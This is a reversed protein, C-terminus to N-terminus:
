IVHNVQNELINAGVRVLSCVGSGAAGVVAVGALAPKGYPKFPVWNLLLLVTPLAGLCNQVLKLTLDGAKVEPSADPLYDGSAAEVITQVVYGGLLFAGGILGFLGTVLDMVPPAAPLNGPLLPQTQPNGPRAPLFDPVSPLATCSFWLLFSLAWCGLTLGDYATSPLGGWLPFSFALVVLALFVPIIKVWKNKLKDLTLLCAFPSYILLGSGYIFGLVQSAENTNTVVFGDARLRGLTAEDVPARGMLQAPTLHRNLLEVNTAVATLTALDIGAAKAFVTTPLALALATLDLVSMEAGLKQKYLKSLLPIHWPTVAVQGVTAVVFGAFDFALDSATQAAALLDNAVMKGALELIQGPSLDTASRGEALAADLQAVLMDYLGGLETVVQQEFTELPSADPPPATAPASAPNGGGSNLVQNQMWNSSPGPAQGAEAVASSYGAGLTQDPLGTTDTPITFREFFDDVTQEVECLTNPLQYNLFTTLIRAISSHAAVISEWDFLSGIWRYLKEFDAALAQLVGQALDFVQRVTDVVYSVLGQLANEVATQITTEIRRVVSVTESEITSITAVAINKLEAAETRVSHWLTGWDPKSLHISFSDRAPEVGAALEAVVERYHAEDRLVHFRVGKGKELFEIRWFQPAVKAVDIRDGFSGPAMVQVGRTDGRRSVFRAAAAEDGTEPVGLSMSQWIAQSADPLYTDYTSAILPQQNGNEDTYTATSLTSQLEAATAPYLYEPSQVYRDPAITLVGGALFSAAVQFAPVGLTGTPTTVTVRGATNTTCTVSRQPGISAPVGNVDVGLADAASIQLVQSPVPNGDTDLVTVETSYTPFDVLEGEYAVTIPEAKWDTSADQWFQLLVGETTLAFCRTYGQSDRCVALSDATARLGDGLAILPSWSLAPPAGEEAAAAQPADPLEVPPLAPTPLQQRCSYLTGDTAIGFFQLPSEGDGGEGVLRSARICAFQVAQGLYNTTFLTLNDPREALEEVFGAQGQESMLFLQTTGGGDRVGALAVIEDIAEEYVTRGLIQHDQYFSVNTNQRLEDASSVFAGDGFAGSGPACDYIEGQIYTSVYDWPNDAQRPYIRVVIQNQPYSQTAIAQFIVEGNRDYGVRLAQVTMQGFPQGLDIWASWTEDSKWYIHSDSGCVLLVVTGGPETGVALETVAVPAHLPRIGWGNEARESPFVNFVEGTSGVSFLQVDGEADLASALNPSSSFAQATTYNQMLESRVLFSAGQASAVSTGGASDSM